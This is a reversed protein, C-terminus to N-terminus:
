RDWVATALALLRSNFRAGQRAAARTNVEFSIQRGFRRLEVAGGRQAFGDAEGVMVPPGNMDPVPMDAGLFAIACGNHTDSLRSVARVLLRGDPVSRGDYEEFARVTSRPGLVCLVVEGGKAARLQSFRIINYVIAAKLREQDTPDQSMAPSADFLALIVSLKIFLHRIM